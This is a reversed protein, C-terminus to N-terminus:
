SSTLSLSLISRDDIEANSPPSHNLECGQQKVGQSYAGIDIPYSAAHADSRTECQPFLFSEQGQRSRFELEKTSWGKDDLGYGTANGVSNDQNNIITYIGNRKVYVSPGWFYICV